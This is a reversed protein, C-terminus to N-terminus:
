VALEGYIEHSHEDYHTITNEYYLMSLVIRRDVAVFVTEGGLLVMAVAGALIDKSL